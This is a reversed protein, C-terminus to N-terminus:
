SDSGNRRRKAPEPGEGDQVIAALTLREARLEASRAEYRELREIDGPDVALGASMARAISATPRLKKGDLGALEQDVEAMRRGAIEASTPPPPDTLYPQGTDERWKIIKGISQGDLLANHEDPTLEYCPNVLNKVVAEYEEDYESPSWQIIDERPLYSILRDELYFGWNGDKKGTYIM